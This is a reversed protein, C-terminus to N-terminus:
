NSFQISVRPLILSPSKIDLAELNGFFSQKKSRELSQGNTMRTLTIHLHLDTYLAAPINVIPCFRILGTLHYSTGTDSKEVLVKMQVSGPDFGTVWM